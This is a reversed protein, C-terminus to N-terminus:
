KSGPAAVPFGFDRFAEPQLGIGKAIVAPNTAFYADFDLM